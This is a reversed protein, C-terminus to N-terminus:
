KDKFITKYIAYLLGVAIIVTLSSPLWLPVDPNATVNGLNSGTNSLYRFFTGALAGFLIVTILFGIYNELIVSNSAMGRKQAIKLNFNM